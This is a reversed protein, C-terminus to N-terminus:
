HLEVSLLFTFDACRQYHTKEQEFDFPNPISYCVNCIIPATPKTAGHDYSIHVIKMKNTFQIMESSQQAVVEWCVSHVLLEMRQFSHSVVALIHSM